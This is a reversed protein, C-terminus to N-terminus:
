DTIPPAWLKDVDERLSTIQEKAEELASAMREKQGSAQVARESMSSLEETAAGLEKRTALLEELLSNESMRRADMPQARWAGRETLRGALRAQTLRSCSHRWM